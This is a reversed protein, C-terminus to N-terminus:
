TNEEKCCLSECPYAIIEDYQTGKMLGGWSAHSTKFPHYKKVYARLRNEACVYDSRSPHETEFDIKMEIRPDDSNVFSSIHTRM